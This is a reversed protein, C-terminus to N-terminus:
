RVNLATMKGKASQQFCSKFFGNKLCIDFFMIDGFIDFGFIDITSVLFLFRIMNAHSLAALVHAWTVTQSDYVINKYFRIM